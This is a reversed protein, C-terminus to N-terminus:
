FLKSLAQAQSAVKAAENVSVISADAAERSRKALRQALKSQVKAQKDLRKAEVFFLKTVGRGLLKILKFM